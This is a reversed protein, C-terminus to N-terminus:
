LPVLIRDKFEKKKKPKRPKVKIVKTEGDDEIIKTAEKIMKLEEKHQEEMQRMRERNFQQQKLRLLESQLSDTIAFERQEERSRETIGMVQDLVHQIAEIRLQLEADTRSQGELALIITDQRRLTRLHMEENAAAHVAQAVLVCDIATAMEDYSVPDLKETIKDILQDSLLDSHKEIVAMERELLTDQLWFFGGIILAIVTGLAILLEKSDKVKQTAESITM